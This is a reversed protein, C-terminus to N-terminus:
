RILNVIYHYIHRCLDAVVTTREPFIVFFLTAASIILMFFSLFINRETNKYDSLNQLIYKKEEFEAMVVEIDCDIKKSGAIVSNYFNEYSIFFPREIRKVIANNDAYVDELQKIIKEWIDDRIYRSYDDINLSLDYKLKLLSMLRNRRLKIKDLKQKYSVVTKGAERSLIDLFLIKFYEVGYEDLHYYVEDKVSEFRGIEIDDDKIIYILRNNIQKREYRDSLRCEFFMKQREDIFQGQYGNVGISAWFSRYEDHYDINTYYTEIRPPMIDNSHLVFPFSYSLKELFEWEICSIFEYIRDAKLSDNNYRIVSYNKFAGTRNSKGTLTPFAYGRKESYNCNILEDLEKKKQETLHVGFELALYASNMNCINVSFYDISSELRHGKFEFIGCEVKEYWSLLTSDMNEIRSCIEDLGANHGYLFRTTRRKKLLQRIGKQLKKIDERHILDAIIITDLNLFYNEPIANNKIRTYGDKRYIFDYYRKWFDKRRGPLVKLIEARKKAYVYLLDENFRKHRLGYYKVTEGGIAM